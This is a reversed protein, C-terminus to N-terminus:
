EGQPETLETQRKEIAVVVSKREEGEALVALAELTEAAKVLQISEPATPGKTEEIIEVVLNPEAGLQELVDKSFRGDPYETPQKGHAMSCRRFGEIKATIRIM